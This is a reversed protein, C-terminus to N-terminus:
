NKRFYNINIVKMIVTKFDILQRIRLFSILVSILLIVGCIIPNKIGESWTIVAFAAMLLLLFSSVFVLNNRSLRFRILRITSVLIFLLYFIYSLLFGIGLIKENFASWGFYVLLLYSVNFVLEGTVYLLGKGKAMLIYALPWSIVKLFTGLIQWQLIAVAPEFSRSYFLRIVFPCYSIFAIMLPASVLIAVETQDNALQIVKKNDGSVESLRPFYDAGMAGLVAGLYVTSLTWAAQFIGVTEVDSVKIIFVRLLYMTGASAMSALVTFLGLRVMKRGKIMTDRFSIDSKEVRIKRAYWWSLLLTVLSITMLAPVIGKNGWFYFMPISLIFGIVVGTVNAKVMMPIKRLGQLLAIQAGSLAVFLLTMSLLAFGWSYSYDGFTIRSLSRCFALTIVSGLIGTIWAWRRLVTITTSIRMQDGSGSAEAVERVGSFGIGLGTASQIFTLTTQYMGIVGVGMPGLLVAIIKTRFIGILITIVQSLGVIGTSKIIEKHSSGQIETMQILESGTGPSNPHCTTSFVM